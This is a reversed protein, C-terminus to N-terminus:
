FPLQVDDIQLRASASRTVVAYGLAEARGIIGDLVTLSRDVMESSVSVGAVGPGGVTLAGRRDPIAAALAMATAQVCPHALKRPVPGGVLAAKAAERKAALDAAPKRSTANFPVYQSGADHPLPTPASLRWPSAM